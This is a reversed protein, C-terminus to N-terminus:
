VWIVTPEMKKEGGAAPSVLRPGTQSESGPAGKARDGGLAEALKLQIEVYVTPKPIEGQHYQEVLSNCGVLVDHYVESNSENPTGTTETPQEDVDVPQTDTPQAVHRM